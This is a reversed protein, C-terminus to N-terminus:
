ETKELDKLLEKVERNDPEKEQAKLLAEKALEIEGRIKYSFGLDFYAHWSDPYEELNFLFLKLSADSDFDLLM